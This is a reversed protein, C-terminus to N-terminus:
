SRLTRFDLGVNCQARLEAPLRSPSRKRQGMGRERELLYDKFFYFYFHLYGPEM